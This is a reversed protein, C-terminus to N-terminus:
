VSQRVNDVAQVDVTANELLAEVIGVHGNQSAVM